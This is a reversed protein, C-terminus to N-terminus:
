RDMAVETADIGNPLVFHASNDNPWSDAAEQASTYHWSSVARRVMDGWKWLYFGKLWRSRRLSYSHLLGCPRLITPTGALLAEGLAVHVPHTFISHVHVVDSQRVQRRVAARFKPAFALRDPGFVAYRELQVDPALEVAHEGHRAGQDTTLVVVEHGAVSQHQTLAEVVATPGGRERTLGPIVHVIKM